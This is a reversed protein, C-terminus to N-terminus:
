AALLNPHWGGVLRGRLAALKGVLLYPSNVPQKGFPCTEISPRLALWCRCWHRGVCKRFNKGVSDFYLAGGAAPIAFLTVSAGQLMPNVVALLAPEVTNAEATLVILALPVRDDLFVDSFIQLRMPLAFTPCFLPKVGSQNLNTKVPFNRLM